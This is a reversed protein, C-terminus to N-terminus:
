QKKIAYDQREIHKYKLFGILFLVFSTVISAVSLFLTVSFIVLFAHDGFYDFLMSNNTSILVLIGCMAVLVIPLITLWYAVLPLMGLVRRQVFYIVSLFACLACLIMCVLVAPALDYDPHVIFYVYGLSLMYVVLMIVSSLQLKNHQM